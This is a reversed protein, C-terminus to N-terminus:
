KKTSFTNLFQDFANRWRDITVKPGTAKFFWPGQTTLAIAGLMAYGKRETAPAGMMVSSMSDLYTGSLYIQTIPINNVRLEKKEIPEKLSTGDANKFQGSWRQINRDVGDGGKKFFSVTLLGDESESAGPLRFQERRMEGSPREKKWEKPPTFLIDGSPLETKAIQNEARGKGVMVSFTLTAILISFIARKM